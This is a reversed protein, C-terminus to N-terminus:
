RLKAGNTIFWGTHELSQPKVSFVNEKLLGWLGLDRFSHTQAGLFYQEFAAIVDIINHDIVKEFSLM